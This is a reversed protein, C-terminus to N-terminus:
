STWIWMIAGVTTVLIGILTGIVLVGAAIDETPDVIAILTRALAMIVLGTLFIQTGINM